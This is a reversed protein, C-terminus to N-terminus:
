RRPPDPGRRPRAALAPHLGLLGVAARRPRRLVRAAGARPRDDRVRGGPRRSGLVPGAGRGLRHARLGCRGAGAGSRRVADRRGPAAGGPRAPPRAARGARDSCRGVRRGPRGPRAHAPRPPARRGPAARPRPRQGLGGRALAPVRGHRAAPLGGGVRGARPRCRRRGGAGCAGAADDGRALAVPAAALAPLIPESVRARTLGAATRRAYDAFAEDALLYPVALEAGALPGDM